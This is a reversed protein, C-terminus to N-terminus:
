INVPKDEDKNKFYNVTKKVFAARKKDEPTPYKLKYAIREAEREILLEEIHGISVDIDDKHLERYYKLELLDIDEEMCAFEFPFTIPRGRAKAQKQLIKGITDRDFKM